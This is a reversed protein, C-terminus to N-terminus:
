LCARDGPCGFLLFFLPDFDKPVFFVTVAQYDAGCNEPVFGFVDLLEVLDCFVQAGLEEGFEFGQLAVRFAHFFQSLLKRLFCGLIFFLRHVLFCHPRASCRSHFDLRQISLEFKVALHARSQALDTLWV